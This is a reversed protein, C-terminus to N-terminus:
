FVAESQNEFNMFFAGGKLATLGNNSKEPQGGKKVKRGTVVSVAEILPQADDNM